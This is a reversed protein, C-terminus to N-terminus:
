RGSGVSDLLASTEPLPELDLEQRLQRAFAGYRQVAEQRRGLKLLRGLLQQLAEEHLPELELVRRLYEQAAAGDASRAAEVLVSVTEERLQEGAAQVADLTLGPALPERYLRLVADANGDALAAKLEDIDASYRDLGSETVYTRSGWPELTRRLLSVQVGSNNRQKAADTEPWMAEATEERSLGLTLLTVLQQQRDTLHVDRGFLKVQLRGLLNIELDPLEAARLDRAESWDSELV